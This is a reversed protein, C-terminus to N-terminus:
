MFFFGFLIFIGKCCEIFFIIFGLFIILFYRLLFFWWIFFIELIVVVLVIVLDFCWKSVWFIFILIGEFGFFFMFFYMFLFLWCIFFIICVDIVVVGLVINCFLVIFIIRFGFLWLWCLSLFFGLFILFIWVNVEFLLWWVCFSVLVVNVVWNFFVICGIVIWNGDGVDNGICLFLWGGMFWFLCKLRVFIFFFIEKGFYSLVMLFFGEVVFFIEREDIFIFGSWGMKGVICIGFCGYMMFFSDVVMVLFCWGMFDRRFRLFFLFFGFIWLWLCIFGGFFRDLIVLIGCFCVCLFGDGVGGVFCFVFGLIFIFLLCFLFLSDFFLLVLLYLLFIIISFILFCGCIGLYNIVM